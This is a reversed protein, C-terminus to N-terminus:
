NGTAQQLLRIGEPTLRLLRRRGDDPDAEQEILAPRGESANSLVAVNKSVTPQPMDLAVKLMNVSSRDRTAIALLVIVQQITLDDKWGRLVQLFSNVNLLPAKSDKM